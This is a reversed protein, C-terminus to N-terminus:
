TEVSPDRHRPGRVPALEDAIRTSARLMEAGTAMLLMNLLEGPTERELRQILADLAEVPAFLAQQLRRVAEAIARSPNDPPTMTPLVYSRVVQEFDELAHTVEGLVAARIPFIALDRLERGPSKRYIM